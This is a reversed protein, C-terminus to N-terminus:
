PVVASPPVCCQPVTKLNEVLAGAGSSYTKNAISWAIEHAARRTQTRRLPRSNVRLHACRTAGAFFGHRLYRSHSSRRYLEVRSHVNEANAEEVAINIFRDGRHKAAPSKKDRRGPCTEGSQAFVLAVPASHNSSIQRNSVASQH